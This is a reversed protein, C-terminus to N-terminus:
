QVGAALLLGGSGISVLSHTHQPLFPVLVIWLSIFQFWFSGAGGPVVLVRQRGGDLDVGLPTEGYNERPLPFLHFAAHGKRQGFLRSYHLLVLWFPPVASVSSLNILFQSFAYTWGDYRMCAACHLHATARLHTTCVINSAFFSAAV